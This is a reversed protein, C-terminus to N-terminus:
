DLHQQRYEGPPIGTWRKFARAFSSNSSFGLRFSIEGLPIHSQHIFQKALDQRVDDLLDKYSTGQEHLKRQLSRLSVNLAEAMLERSPEGLPLLEVLKARVRNLMDGKDLRALYELMLQENHVLLDTNATPLAEHMVSRDFYLCIADNGFSVPCGFFAEYDTAFVPEERVLDVRQPQLGVGYLSRCLSLVASISAEHAHHTVVFSGSEDRHIRSRLLLCEGEEEVVVKGATSFVKAYRQMCQLAKHLSGSVWMSVSLAYFTSPSVFTGARVGFLPDGSLEVARNWLVTMLETSYRTNPDSADELNVGCSKCLARGDHGYEELARAIIVAWSGITSHQKLM